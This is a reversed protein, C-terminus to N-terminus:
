AFSGAALVPRGAPLSSPATGGEPRERERSASPLGAFGAVTGSGNGGEASSRGAGDPPVSEGGGVASEFGVTGGSPDPGEGGRGAVRAAGLGVPGGGGARPPGAGPPTLGPTTTGGSRGDSSGSDSSAKMPVVARPRRKQMMASREPLMFRTAAALGASRVASW